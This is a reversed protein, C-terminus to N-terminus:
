LLITDFRNEISGGSSVYWSTDRYWTWFGTTNDDAMSVETLEMHGVNEAVGTTYTFRIVEQTSGASITKARSLIRTSANTDTQDIYLGRSSHIDM